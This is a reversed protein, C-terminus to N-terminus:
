IIFYSPMKGERRDRTMHVMLGSDGTHTHGCKDCHVGYHLIHLSVAREHGHLRVKWHMAICVSSHVPHIGM